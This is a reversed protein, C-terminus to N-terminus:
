MKGHDEDIWLGLSGGSLTTNLKITTYVSGEVLPKPQKVNLMPCYIQKGEEVADSGVTALLM